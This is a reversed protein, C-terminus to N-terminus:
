KATLIEKPIISAMKEYGMLSPHLHDGSDFENAFAAPNINNRLAFDFAICGNTERTTRIWDNVQCRIVERFQEYTRWGYIPLLTGIYVKLEYKEAIDIYARLGNIIDQATPM